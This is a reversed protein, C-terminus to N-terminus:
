SDLSLKDELMEFVRSKMSARKMSKLIKLCKFCVSLAAKFIKIM